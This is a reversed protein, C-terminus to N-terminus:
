GVGGFVRKYYELVFPDAVVDRKSFSPLIRVNAIATARSMAVYASAPKPVWHTQGLRQVPEVGRPDVDLQQAFTGGQASHITIAAALALPIQKSVAYVPRDDVKFSQRRVWSTRRVVTEQAEEEGLADWMVRVGDNEEFESEVGTVTGLQGNSTQLERDFGYSGVYVNRLCRVRCGVKIQVTAPEGNPGRKVIDASSWRLLHLPVRNPPLEQMGHGEAMSVTKVVAYSATITILPSDIAALKNDNRLKCKANSPFIALDASGSQRSERKLWTTDADTTQGVRMRNLVAAFHSDKQRIVQTLQVPRLHAWSDSEFAWKKGGARQIDAKALVPELQFFDAIAMVTVGGFPANSSNVKKLAVDVLDIMESSAMSSEDIIVLKKAKLRENTPRDLVCTPAGGAVSKADGGEVHEGTEHEHMAEAPREHASQNETQVLPEGAARKRSRINFGFHLTNGRLEGVSAVRAATGTPACIAVAQSGCAQAVATAVARTVHSKGSGAKGTLWISQGLIAVRVFAMAQERNFVQKGDPAEVRLLVAECADKCLGMLTWKESIRLHCAVVFWLEM